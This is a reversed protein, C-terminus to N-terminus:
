SIFNTLNKSQFTAMSVVFAEQLDIESLFDWKWIVSWALEGCVRSLIWEFQFFLLFFGEWIMELQERHSNGAVFKHISWWVRRNLSTVLSDIEYSFSRTHRKRRPLHDICNVSSNFSNPIQLRYIPANKIIKPVKIYWFTGCALNKSVRDVQCCKVARYTHRYRIRRRHRPYQRPQCHRRFHSPIM